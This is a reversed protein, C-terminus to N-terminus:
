IGSKAVNNEATHMHRIRVDFSKGPNGKGSDYWETFKIAVKDGVEAQKLQRCARVHSKPNLAVMTVSGDELELTYINQVGLKNVVNYQPDELLTGQVMQGPETFKYWDSKPVTTDDAFLDDPKNEAPM